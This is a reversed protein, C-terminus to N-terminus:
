GARQPPISGGDVTKSVTTSGSCWWRLRCCRVPHQRIWGAPHFGRTQDQSASVGSRVKWEGGLSNDGLWPSVSSDCRPGQLVGRPVGVTALPM